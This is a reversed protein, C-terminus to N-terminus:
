TDVNRKPVVVQVVPSALGDELDENLPHPHELLDAEHRECLLVVRRQGSMVEIAPLDLVRHARCLGQRHVLALRQGHAVDPLHELHLGVKLAVELTASAVLIGHATVELPFRASKPKTSNYAFLRPFHMNEVEKQGSKVAEKEESKDREKESGEGREPPKTKTYTRNTQRLLGKSSRVQNTKIM